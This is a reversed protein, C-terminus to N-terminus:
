SNRSVTVARAFIEATEKATCQEYCLPVRRETSNM